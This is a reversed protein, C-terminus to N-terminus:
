PVVRVPISGTGSPDAGAAPLVVELRYSGPSVAGPAISEITGACRVKKGTVAVVLPEMRRVVSGDDAM